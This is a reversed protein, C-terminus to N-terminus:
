QAIVLYAIKDGSVITAANSSCATTSGTGVGIPDAPTTVDWFFCTYQNPAANAFTLTTTCTTVAGAVITGSTAGLVTTGRTGCTGSVVPVNTTGTGGDVFTGHFTELGTAPNYGYYVAASAATAILIGALFTLVKKLM